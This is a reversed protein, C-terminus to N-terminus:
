RFLEGGRYEAQNGLEEEIRLLQNYKALRESRSLGGAKIQGAETGVALDAIFTEETEGSRHSVVTKYGAERAIRITRLTESVTGIQNPKILVANAVRGEIGKKLREPNTVFLDDGVLQLVGGLQRTMLTWGKWDDEALGDEISVLEFEKALRRYYDSVEDPTRKVGEETRLRYEGKIFLESAAVDLALGVSKGPQYGSKTIAETILGLIERISSIRPAFGGEDGVTVSHGRASLIKRLNQFVEVGIRVSDGFTQGFPLIMFEQIDLNNDAHRGGNVVNMLPVPLLRGRDGFLEAIERFLPRRHVQASARLYAMSVALIANAGLRSKNPTGDLECLIRDLDEQHGEGFGRIKPAIVEQINRIAVNIGRGLFSTGQDRLEIAEFSGTSAGSPVSARGIIEGAFLVECEVTPWGRSDIIM